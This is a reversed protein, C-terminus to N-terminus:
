SGSAVGPQGPPRPLGDAPQDRGALMRERLSEYVPRGKLLVAAFLAAAVGAFLATTMSATGTMEIILVVGTLPAQVSATFLAAMGVVAFPVPSDGVVAVVAPGGVGTLVTHFLTGWLAGIALMPAFLGGPAGAAYSLPGALFRVALYGLLVWLSWQGGTLLLQAIEDGGGVLLPDFWLLLGIVAGIGAARVAGPVRSADALRLAGVTVANSVVGLAGTLLGFLLYAWLAHLPPASVAAVTFEPRSPEIFRSVGVAISTSVLTILVVRIRFSRTVEEITFLAGGVPANFAVALGAGGVTTYLLKREYDTLRFWRGVEAGISAGLHVSPGERGVVLGSGIAVM